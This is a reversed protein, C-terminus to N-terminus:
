RRQTSDSPEFQTETTVAGHNPDHHEKTHHTKLTKSTDSVGLLPPFAALYNIASDSLAGYGGPENATWALRPNKKVFNGCNFCWPMHRCTQLTSKGWQAILNGKLFPTTPFVFNGSTLQCRRDSPSCMKVHHASNGDLGSKVRIETLAFVANM